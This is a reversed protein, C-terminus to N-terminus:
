ETDHIEDDVSEIGHAFSEDLQFVASFCAGGGEADSYLLRIGNLKALENAVYLGLGM